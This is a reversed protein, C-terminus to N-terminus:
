YVAMEWTGEFVENVDCFALIRHLVDLPLDAGRFTSLLLTREGANQDQCTMPLLRATRLHYLCNTLGQSQRLDQTIVANERAVARNHKLIADEHEQVNNESWYLIGCIYTPSMKKFLILRKLKESSFLKKQSFPMLNEKFM